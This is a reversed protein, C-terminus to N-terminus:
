RSINQFLESGGPRDTPTKNKEWTVRLIAASFEETEKALEINIVLCFKHSSLNMSSALISM